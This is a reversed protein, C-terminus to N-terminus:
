DGSVMFNKVVELKMVGPRTYSAARSHNPNPEMTERSYKKHRKNELGTLLRQLIASNQGRKRLDMESM